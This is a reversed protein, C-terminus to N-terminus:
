QPGFHNKYNGNIQLSVFDQTRVSSQHERRKDIWLVGHVHDPMVVFADLMVFPFHQPIEQWCEWARSGIKSLGM